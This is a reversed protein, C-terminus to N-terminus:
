AVGAALERVQFVNGEPDMANCVVFGPGTWNEEFVTGGLRAATARAAALSPVTFFFKLATDERKLPPATITIGAAISPPIPHVLLQIDSSELVILEERDHLRTMGAILEYFTALRDADVAYIFLGARAPGPMLTEKPHSRKRTSALPLAIPRCSLAQDSRAFYQLFGGREYSPQGDM